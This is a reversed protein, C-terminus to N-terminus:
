ERAAVVRQMWVVVLYVCCTHVGPVWLCVSAYGASSVVSVYKRIQSEASTRTQTDASLAATLLNHLAAAGGDQRTALVRRQSLGPCVTSNFVGVVCGVGKEEGTRPSSLPLRPRSTRPPVTVHDPKKLPSVLLGCPSRLTRTHPSTQDRTSLLNSIYRFPM